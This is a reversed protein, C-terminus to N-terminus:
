RGPGEFASFDFTEASGPIYTAVIRDLGADFGRLHIRNQFLAPDRNLSIM